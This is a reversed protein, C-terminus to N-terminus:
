KIGFRVFSDVIQRQLLAYIFLIPLCSVTTAAMLSGWMNSDSNVFSKLGIQIPANEMEKTILSPWLYDNWGSIFLFIGLSAMTAKMNPLIVRLLIGLDSEGDLRSAEILAVPFSKMSHYVTLIVFTSVAGPLVIGLWHENLGIQNVLVYNPIMTAQIPILWTLSLLTFISFSGKFKWRVLAYASLIGTTLQLVASGIAVIFSNMMMRLIPMEAFAYAYNRLTPQLPIFSSTFIEAENKFSSIVMWYVPFISIVCMIILFVHQIIRLSTRQLSM